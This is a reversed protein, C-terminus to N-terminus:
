RARRLESNPLRVTKSQGPYDLNVYIPENDGYSVFFALEGEGDRVREGRRLDLLGGNQRAIQENQDTRM